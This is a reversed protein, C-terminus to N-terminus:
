RQQARRAIARVAHRVPVPPRGALIRVKDAATSEAAYFRQVLDADLRYHRQLVRYREEPVAARFLMTDLLRYFGRAQWTRAAHDHTLQYLAPHSLDSAAAIRAALRVADPLSYGTTPHFLAARMGAKALEAGSSAWYREFDGDIVVPLVGHETRSAGLVEWGRHRAYDAIRQQLLPQDLASNDSYYTDEM